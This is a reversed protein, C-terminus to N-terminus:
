SFAAGPAQGDGSYLPPNTTKFTQSHEQSATLIGANEADEVQTAQAKVEKNFYGSFNGVVPASSEFFSYNM